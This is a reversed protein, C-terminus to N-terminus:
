LRLRIDVGLQLPAGKQSFGRNMSEFYFSRYHQNTLNKGWLGLDAKGHSFSLRADLTGYFQESTNNDETWYIKGRGNWDAQLTIRELWKSLAWSYRAGANFTHLPVFPVYHGRYSIGAQPSYTRFTSHTFGYATHASLADTIQASAALECGVARSRGANVTIRGLGNEAMRSVQQDRVETLFVAMDMHLRHNILNCHSGIEYNWAYEPKYQSLSRPNINPEQAMGELLASVRDKVDQPVMPQSQLIPLTVKAVDKMIDAQMMRQLAGSFQQINFGGSRYGRSVTAYLNSSGIRYQLSFRPLLQLYDHCLRGPLANQVHHSAAPVMTIDREMGPMTLHGMLSYEHEFDYGTHYDIKMKEYDLRLGLTLDLGKAGLLDTITSQHYVAGSGTPTSFRGSFLLGDGQIADHFVMQMKMLGQTIAPMHANANKNMNANIWQVGESRFTVPGNTDLWQRFGSVGMSWEWHRWAGPRNKIAIEQSLVRSNQRQLLTYIDASTFDQDMNMRDRLYQFGAVYSMVAKQWNHEAKFGLNLLHREYDNKRNYNVQGVSTSITPYFYDSEQVSELKYPFAGQRSYEYNAHFDLRVVESPKAVLRFRTSADDDRAAKKGTYANTFFGESHAYSVGSSFGLKPSLRHYHTASARATGYTAGQLSIDTGQYDLPNKTHIRILGGMANRGYLTSQPGRLIDISQVDSLDFDYASKDVWPIDDVYLGVAPTNIRSGVGRMYISTTQRSGYSPIYLGPVLSAFDKMSSIQKSKLLHTDIITAALPQERLARNDKASSVTVEQMLTTDTKEQAYVTSMCIALLPVLTIKM